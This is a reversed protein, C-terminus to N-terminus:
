KPTQRNWVLDLGCRVQFQELCGSGLLGRKSQRRQVVSSREVASPLLLPGTSHALLFIHEGHPRLLCPCGNILDVLRLLLVLLTRDPLISARTLNLLPVDAQTVRRSLRPSHPPRCASGARAARPPECCPCTRQMLLRSLALSRSLSALSLLHTHSLLSLFHPLSFSLALFASLFLRRVKLARPNLKLHEGILARAPRQRKRENGGGEKRETTPDCRDSSEADQPSRDCLHRSPNGHDTNRHRQAARDSQHQCATSLSRTSASGVQLPWLMEFRPPNELLPHAPARPRSPPARTSTSPQRPPLRQTPHLHPHLRQVSCTRLSLLSVVVGDQEGADVSVSM